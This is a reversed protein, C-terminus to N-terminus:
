LVKERLEAILKNYFSIISKRRLLGLIKGDKKSSLVPLADINRSTIKGLAQNLTEEPYTVEVDTVAIDKIIILQEIEPNFLVHRFDSSSFIGTLKGNSDVVPFSYQTTKVFIDRKFDSFKMNEPVVYVPELEHLLEEVKHDRLVDVFLEGAHAPSQFKNDLQNEYISIHRNFFICIASCFMLPALLGYDQTLECVIIFPGIPASGAGAFFSAMGVLVFAGPHSVMTPFYQKALFGVIGGAMGGLFLTPAFMGGSMESGITVSTAITKAVMFALMTLISLKGLIALELYGYGGTLVYPLFMGLLGMVLGGLGSCVVLGMKKKIKQFISYKIFFFTKVYLFGSIACFLSLVLYFPLEKVHFSFHPITFIPHNGYILTFVTYAIVSSIIAPLLAESEFDEKYIIEVGTIAGGLPARFIAGLGGGAGALLLIRKERPSLKFKSALFSGLGGGILTIPGERGASGGSGITFVAAVGKIFTVLPNINGENQHFARTIADTGDTIHDQQAYPIIKKVVIGTIVGVLTTFIPILWPRHVGPIGKFIEEGSPGPIHMGALQTLLKFKTWEIGLFFLAASGGALVGLLISLLMLRFMTVSKYVDRTADWFKKLNNMAFEM